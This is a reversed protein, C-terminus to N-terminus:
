RLHDAYFTCRDLKLVIQGVVKRLLRRYTRQWFFSIFCLVFDIYYHLVITISYIVEFSFDASSSRGKATTGFFTNKQVSEM